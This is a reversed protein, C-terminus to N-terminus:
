NRGGELRLRDVFVSAVQFATEPQCGFDLCLQAVWMGIEGLSRDQLRVQMVDWKRTQDITDTSTYFEKGKDTIILSRRATGNLGELRM